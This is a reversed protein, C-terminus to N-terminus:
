TTQPGTKCVCVPDNIIKFRHYYARLTGHGTLITSLKINMKLRKSKRAGVDPFFSKTIVGKTSDNWEKQWQLEGEEQIGKVVASKPIKSYATEEEASIAAKKALQDALENGVNGNHAKVWTFHITWKDKELRRVGERIQEVLDHHNRPNATADLTIISDTHVAVSRQEEKLHSYNQLNELAKVIAYQEAQNNSCQEALKYTLRLQLQKNV